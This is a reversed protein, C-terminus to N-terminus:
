PINATDLASCGFKFAMEYSQGAWIAEYFGQSFKLAALDGIEVNMGVVGDIPKSIAQAQSDYLCANLVICKIDENLLHFLKAHRDGNM